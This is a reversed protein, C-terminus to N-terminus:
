NTLRSLWKRLVAYRSALRVVVPTVATRFSAQHIVGRLSAADAFYPLVMVARGVEWVTHADSGVTGPLGAQRAFTAAQHNQRAFLCRANFVELADLDARIEGLAARSWHGSRSFDFPHALSIFAGQAKLRALAEKVPLGKPIEETVFAALLEGQQTMIEEGVIVREPDLRQAVLAGAITNHDTVVIRDVGKQKCAALIDEPRSLCDKSFVTHCHFEVTLYPQETM